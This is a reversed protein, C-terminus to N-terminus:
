GVVPIRRLIFRAIYASVLIGIGYEIQFPKLFFSVYPGLTITDASLLFDPVPILNLLGSVGLMFKEYFWEGLNTFFTAWWDSYCSFDAFDCSEIAAPQQEEDM